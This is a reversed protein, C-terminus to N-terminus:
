SQNVQNLNLKTSPRDLTQEPQYYEDIQQSFYQAYQKEYDFRYTSAPVKLDFYFIFHPYL